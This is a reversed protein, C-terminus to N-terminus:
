AFNGPDNNDVTTGSADAITWISNGTPIGPTPNMAATAALGRLTETIKPYENCMVATYKINSTFVLKSPVTNVTTSAYDPGIGVSGPIGRCVVLIQM